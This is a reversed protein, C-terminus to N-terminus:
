GGDNLSWALARVLWEGDVKNLIWVHTGIAHGSEGEELIFTTEFDAIKCAMSGDGEIRFDSIEIDKIEVQDDVLWNRILEKGCLVPSDPPILIVDPTCLSLLVEIQGNIEAELWTRHVQKIAEFDEQTLAM